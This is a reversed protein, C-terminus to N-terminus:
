KYKDKLKSDLDSIEKQKRSYTNFDRLVENATILSNVFHILFNGTLNYDKYAKTAFSAEISYVDWKVKEIDAETKFDGWEDEDDACAKQGCGM